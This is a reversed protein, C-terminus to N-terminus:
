YDTHGECYETGPVVPQGCIRDYFGAEIQDLIRLADEVNDDNLHARMLGLFNDPTREIEMCLAIEEVVPLDSQENM